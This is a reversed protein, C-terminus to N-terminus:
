SADRDSCYLYDVYIDVDMTVGSTTDSSGFDIDLYGGVSVYIGDSPEVSQTKQATEIFAESCKRNNTGLALAGVYPTVTANGLSAAGTAAGGMFYRIGTVIAGKPIFASTRTSLSASTLGWPLSFNAFATRRIAFQNNAM